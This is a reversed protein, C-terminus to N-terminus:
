FHKIADHIRRHDEFDSVWVFITKTARMATQVIANTVGTQIRVNETVPVFTKTKVNM